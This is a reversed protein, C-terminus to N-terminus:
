SAVGELEKPTVLNGGAEKITKEAKESWKEVVVLLPKDIKGGAVLKRIGLEALNVVPLGKVTQVKGERELNEVITSLQILNISNIVPKNPRHFGHKGFYDRNYRLVWTWKHKHMGANGHGGKSGTKRHQGIQGWGCTRSGRHKRSKRHRTGMRRPV